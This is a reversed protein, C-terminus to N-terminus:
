TRSSNRACPFGPSSCGADQGAVAKGVMGGPIVYPFDCYNEVAAVAQLRTGEPVCAKKPEIRSNPIWPRVEEAVAVVTHNGAAVWEGNPFNPCARDCGLLSDKLTRTLTELPTDLQTQDNLFSNPDNPVVPVAADTHALENGHKQPVAAALVVLLVWVAGLVTNCADDMM